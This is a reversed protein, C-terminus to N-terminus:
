RLGDWSSPAARAGVSPPGPRSAHTSQATPAAPAAAYDAGDPSSACPRRCRRPKGCRRTPTQRAAGPPPCRGRGAARSAGAPGATDAPPTRRGHRSRCPRARSSHRARTTPPRRHARSRVTVAGAHPRHPETPACGVRRERGGWSGRSRRADRCRIPRRCRRQGSARERSRRRDDIQERRGAFRSRIGGPGEGRPTGAASPQNLADRLDPGPRAPEDTTRKEIVGLM